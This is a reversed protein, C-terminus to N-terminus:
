PRSPVRQAHVGRGQRRGLLHRTRHLRLALQLELAQEPKQWDPGLLEAIRELRRYVTNPHVHLAEAAATASSGSAFYVELTRTLETMRLLDYELLPGLASQVFGDLDHREALLVGLFGLDGPAAYGGPGGLATLAGVCRLAEQYASRVAGDGARLAAAGVTVPQDLLPTLEESVARAAATADAGPLLLVIDGDVVSKLGATRHAYSSAWVVARGGTGGEPRAVAVVHPRTLDIALRGTRDALRAPSPGRASLLEDFLGDRVQGELLATNRQILLLTACVQAASRLLRLEEEALPTPRALVLAGLSESGAAVSAAWVGDGAPVPTRGTHADLVARSLRAEDLAPAEGVTALARGAADRVLLAGDLAAAAEAAVAPLDRGDLVLDTLRNRLDGLHREGALSTRARSGDRELETVEARTHDLLRAKEIAVSALDALSRMLDIESPAFHRIRRNAGYLNGYVTDGHRLPVSLIARLGEARVVSDVEESHPIRDDGLYDPTWSPAGSKLALGGLGHGGVVRLGVNLATTDGDSARIWSGQGDADAFGIYAMDFTLLRRARRAIVQLLTDLDYPLTLDRATDVLATLGAERQEHRGFLSHVGLALETAQELEELDAGRAGDRRAERVLAEFRSPAAEEALLRLVTIANATGSRVARTM